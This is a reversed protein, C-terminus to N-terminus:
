NTTTTIGFPGSFLTAVAGYVLSNCSQKEEPEARIGISAQKRSQISTGVGVKIERALLLTARGPRGGLRWSPRSTGIGHKCVGWFRNPRDTRCPAVGFIHHRPTRTRDPQESSVRYHAWYAMISPATVTKKEECRKIHPHWSAKRGIQISVTRDGSLNLSRDCQKKCALVRSFFIFARGLRMILDHYLPM